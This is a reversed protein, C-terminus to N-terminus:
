NGILRRGLQLLRNTRHRNPNHAHVATILVELDAQSWHGHSRNSVSQSVQATDDCEQSQLALQSAMPTSSTYMSPAPSSSLLSQSHTPICPMQPPLVAASSAPADPVAFEGITFEPMADINFNALVQFSQWLPQPLWAASQDVPQMSYMSSCSMYNSFTSFNFNPIHPFLYWLSNVKVKIHLRHRIVIVLVVMPQNCLSLKM